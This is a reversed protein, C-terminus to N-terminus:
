VIAALAADRKDRAAKRWAKRMDSLTPDKAIQFDIDALDRKYESKALAAKQVATLEDWTRIHRAAYTTGFRDRYVTRGQQIAQRVEVRNPFEPSKVCYRTEYKKM